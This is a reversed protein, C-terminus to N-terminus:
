CFVFIKRCKRASLYSRPSCPSKRHVLEEEFEALTSSNDDLLEIIHAKEVTELINSDSDSISSIDDDTYSDQSEIKRGVIEQVFFEM